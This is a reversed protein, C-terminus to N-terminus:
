IYMNVYYVYKYICIYNVCSHYINKEEREKDNVRAYTDRFANGEM